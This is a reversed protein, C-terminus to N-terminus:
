SKSKQGYVFRALLVAWIIAAFGLILGMVLAARAAGEDLFSIIVELVFGAYLLGLGTLMWQWWTIRLHNKRVYLILLIFVATLFAGIVMHAM